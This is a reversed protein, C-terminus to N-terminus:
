YIYQQAEAYSRKQHKQLFIRNKLLQGIHGIFFSAALIRGKAKIKWVNTRVINDRFRFVNFKLITVTLRAFFTFVEGAVVWLPYHTVVFYLHNKEVMHLFFITEEKGTTAKHKHFVRAKPAFVIDWGMKWTRFSFDIDEYYMFFNGDLFGIHDIVSRKILCAAGCAALLQAPQEYHVSDKEYFEVHENNAIRVVSGRDKSFGDSLLINGANQVRYELLHEVQNRTLTLDFQKVENSTLLVEDVIKGGVKLVVPTQLKKETPYGHITIRYSESQSGQFPLLVTGTGRTWRTAINSLKKEYFGSEYWVLGTHEDRSCQIDELLIGIPSFDISNEISSKPICNAEITLEVFPIDFLLKSSVIGVAEPEAAKVLESLWSREVRADTNLLVIYEGTSAAFGLNNGGTFGSNIPSEVIKVQPYNKSVFSVSNDKSDNDIVIVEYKSKPYQLNFVADLCEALLHQGNYNVILISVSPLEPM